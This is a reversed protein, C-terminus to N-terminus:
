KGDKGIQAEATDNVLACMRRELDTCLTRLRENEADIVTQTLEEDYIPWCAYRANRLLLLVPEVELITLGQQAHELKAALRRAEECNIM